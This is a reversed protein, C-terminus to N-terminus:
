PNAGAAEVAAGLRQDSFNTLNDNDYESFGDGSPFFRPTFSAPAEAVGYRGDLGSAIIQFSQDNIWQYRPTTDIQMRAYALCHGWEEARGEEYANRTAAPITGGTADLFPALPYYTTQYTIADIYIFPPTDFPTTGEFVYEPWGDGDRDVLRRPDFEFLRQTRQEQARVNADSSEIPLFPNSPDASFNTLEYTYTGDDHYFIQPMGGLWFVLAEAADLNELKLGNQLYAPPTGSGLNRLSARTSDEIAQKANGTFRPFARAVHRQIRNARQELTEVLPNTGPNPPYSGYEIKYQEIANSLLGIETLVRAEGGRNLARSAAMTILGVLISILVIVMLLEVLTFGAPRSASSGSHPYPTASM